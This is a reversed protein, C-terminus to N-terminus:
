KEMVIESKRGTKTMNAIKKKPGTFTGNPLVNAATAESTIILGASVNSFIKSLIYKQAYKWELTNETIPNDPDKNPNICRAILCLIKNGIM